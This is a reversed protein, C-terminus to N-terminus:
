KTTKAKKAAAKKVAKKAPLEVEAPTASKSRTTRLASISKLTNITIGAKGMCKDHVFEGNVHRAIEGEKLPLECVHCKKQTKPRGM